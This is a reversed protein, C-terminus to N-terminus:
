FPLSFVFIRENTGPCALAYSYNCSSIGYSAFLWPKYKVQFCCLVSTSLLGHPMNRVSNLFACLYLSKKHRAAQRESGRAESVCFLLRMLV